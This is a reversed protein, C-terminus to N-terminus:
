FNDVRAYATRSKESVTAYVDPSPFAGGFYRISVAVFLSIMCGIVLSAMLMRGATTMADLSMRSLGISM